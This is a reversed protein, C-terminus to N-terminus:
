LRFATFVQFARFDLSNDKGLLNLFTFSAGVDLNQIPTWVAAASLPIVYTDGFHELLAFVGTGLSVAVNDKVQVTASLPVSLYEKTEDTFGFFGYTPTTALPFAIPVIKPKRGSV